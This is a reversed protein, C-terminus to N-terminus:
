QTEEENCVIDYVTVEQMETRVPVRRCVTSTFYVWLRPKGDASWYGSISTAKEPIEEVSDRRYGLEGLKRYLELLKARNGAVSVDLTTTSAECVGGLEEVAELVGGLIVRNTSWWEMRDALRRAAAALDKDISTM